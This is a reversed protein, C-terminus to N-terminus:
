PHVAIARALGGAGSDAMMMRLSELRGQRGISCAWRPGPCAVLAVGAVLRHDRGPQVPHCGCREVAACRTLALLTAARCGPM